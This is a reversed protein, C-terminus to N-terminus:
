YTNEALFRETERDYSQIILLQIVSCKEIVFSNNNNNCYNRYSVIVFLQLTTNDLLKYIDIYVEKNIKLM